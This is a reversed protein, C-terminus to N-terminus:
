EGQEISKTLGALGGRCIEALRALVASALRMSEEYGKWAKKKAETGSPLFVSALIPAYGPRPVEGVDDLNVGYAQALLVVLNRLGVLATDSPGISAALEVIKKAAYCEVPEM